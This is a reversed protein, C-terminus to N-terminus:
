WDERKQADHFKLINKKAYRLSKLLEADINEYAEEIEEKSVKIENEDLEVKDYINSFRIIAKDGLAKVESIIKLVVEKIDEQDRSRTIFEAVNKDSIVDSNVIKPLM